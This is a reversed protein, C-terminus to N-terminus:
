NASHAGLDLGTGGIILISGANVPKGFQVGLRDFLLEWATMATLPLATARSFDIEKPKPGVIREDVLHFEANTGSRVLSGAYWVERGQKFFAVRAGIAKVAGAAGFGLIVRYTGEVPQTSARVKTDVPNVSVAKVEVLLDKEFATPILLM